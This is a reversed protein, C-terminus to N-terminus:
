HDAPHWLQVQEVAARKANAETHASSIQQGHRVQKLRHKSANFTPVPAEIIWVRQVGLIDCTRLCALYNKNDTCCELVLLIRDVRNALAHAIKNYQQEVDARFQQQDSGM